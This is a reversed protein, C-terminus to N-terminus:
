AKKLRDILERCSAVIADRRGLLEGATTKKRDEKLKEVEGPHKASLPRTSQLLLEAFRMNEHCDRLPEAQGQYANIVKLKYELHEAFKRRQQRIACQKCLTRAADGIFKKAFVGIKAHCAACRRM